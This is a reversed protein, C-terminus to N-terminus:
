AKLIILRYKSTLYLTFLCELKIESTIVWSVLTVTLQNNSSIHDYYSSGDAECSLNYM